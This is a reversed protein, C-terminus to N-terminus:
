MTYTLGLDLETPGLDLLAEPIAEGEGISMGQAKHVARTSLMDSPLGTLIMCTFSHNSDFSCQSSLAWAVDLPLQKRECFAKRALWTRSIPQVAVVGPQGARFGAFGLIDEEHENLAVGYQEDYSEGRYKSCAVFVVLPLAPPAEGERYVIELVVGMLGNAVGRSVWGNWNFTVWAGVCISLVDLLGQAQKATGSQALSGGRPHEARITAIPEHLM